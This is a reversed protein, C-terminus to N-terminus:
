TSSGRVSRSASRCPPPRRWRRGTPTALPPPRGSVACSGGPSTAPWRGSVSPRAPLGSSATFAEVAAFAATVDGALALAFARGFFAHFRAFPHGLHEPDLLAREALDLAESIRGQHARLGGMWVQAVGRVAAPATALAESLHEEALVLRGTSHRIRGALALCSSRLAPDATRRIAEDAYRLAAEWDRRYYAVWGTLEVAEPGAGLELARLGDEDARAYDLRGLRVRARALRAGATETLGLAETLLREAEALDYRAEALAAGAVLAAAARDTDGGLRAHWAVALPDPHPRASLVRAAERHLWARRSATAGAALAERVLAHPFAFAAGQEGLLRTRAAAELDDLLSAAPRSLVEALVDLDVGPGLVAAAIITAAGPGLAAARAMVAETISAPLEETGSAALEVLFLPHGGSRAHLEAALEPGVLEAAEHADLLGLPVPVAEPLSPGPEPRRTALVLLRRGRRGALRLWEVTSPGALHLDDVVVVVPAVRGLREIVALLAAFLAAQAAGADPLVTAGPTAPPPGGLLPGILAADPGLVDAAAEPGVARLHAELGDILPQLPLDRGLEDARGSLVVVGAAAARAAFRAAFATKGIGAEGEVLASAVGGAAAQALLADLVALEESRGVFPRGAAVQPPRHGPEVPRGAPGTPPEGLLVSRHVAETEPTLSAGLDEALRERVRAYAALASAPRGAGAHARMLLRLAVEDYPDHDLAVEAAAAAGAPDGAGLAAEAAVLRVRALARDVTAREADAWPADEDPLLPGRALELAAAAAALAAANSGARFRAAAEEARTDLEAIDIWDAQLAYGADRRPLRDAGLVGRLRSVLVGLQDAARAPPGDPWVADALRDAPVPAGRALALVKLLTRAKRSGVRAPELGEVEFGGLLRVRLV